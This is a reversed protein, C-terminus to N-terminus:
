RAVGTLGGWARGDRTVPILAASGGDRCCACSWTLMEGVVVPYAECCAGEEFWDFMTEVIGRYKGSITVRSGAATRYHSSM